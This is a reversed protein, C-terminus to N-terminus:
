TMFVMRYSWCGVRSAYLCLIINDAQIIVVEHWLDIMVRVAGEYLFDDM